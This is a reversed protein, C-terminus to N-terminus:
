HKVASRLSPNGSQTGTYFCHKGVAQTRANRAPVRFPQGPIGKAQLNALAFKGELLGNVLLLEVAFVVQSSAIMQFSAIWEKSSKRHAILNIEAPKIVM